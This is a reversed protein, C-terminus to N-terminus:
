EPLNTTQIVQGMFLANNFLRETGRWYGRFLPNNAFRVVLGAGKREAIVAAKEKMEAQKEQGIFGAMLPSNTYRVPTSYANKSEVLLVEGRRFVALDDRQYGFVLPHTSDMTAGVIAGGIVTQADDNSYEAYPRDVVDAKDKKVETSKCAEENSEFCLSEAWSAARTSAILTGGELVWQVIRKKQSTNIASYGGDPMILHTYDALRVRPLRSMEVMTPVFGLRKDFHFWADGMDYSSVGEGVIMLPKLPKILQFHLSGLDPGEPTLSSTSNFINLGTSAANQLIAHAKETMGKDQLGLQIVLDGRDFSRPGSPTKTTFPKIATRVRTGATLLEQLLAAAEQQQWPVIWAVANTTASQLANESTLEKTRPLKDLTAYPLNYALPTTWASVDYFFDDEFETRVEMMGQLLGFQRQNAPLVWAHGPSFVKGDVRVERALSSYNIQHRDMLDLFAAARASDGDDSVVWGAFGAERARNQMGQFFGRQYVTLQEKLEHSGHLTSLTTRLHNQIANVFTLLGTDRELLPGKIGPQEFLIGVTGNIDPYSSGKGFYFDDYDDETFYIEGAEDMFKAHYQALARTMELNEDPTLPNQRAPVGPQFFYGDRGREHQDTLVHPLWRHFEAVRARSEPHVLPLWDRNIDFYYHNTRAGPWAENNVRHNRDSVPNASRNSNAWSAFRNLGDPNYSPDILIISSELLNKVFDSNSAALYYAALLAANSGSAENGHISHGLWVVLPADHDIGELASSLHQQRLEELKGQNKPTTFILQLIPRQEHSYGITKISVRDSSAALTEMYKVLLDHSVRWEGVEWGLVSEPTPISPNLDADAPLYQVSTLAFAPASLLLGLLTTLVRM